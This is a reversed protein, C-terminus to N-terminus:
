FIEERQSFPTFISSRSHLSLIPPATNALELLEPLSFLREGLTPTPSVRPLLTLLLDNQYLEALSTLCLSCTQLHITVDRREAPALMNDLYASLREEVQECIM